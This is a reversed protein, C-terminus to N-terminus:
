DACVYNDLMWKVRNLTQRAQDKDFEMEEQADSIMSYALNKASMKFAGYGVRSKFAEEMGKQTVGFLAVERREQDTLDRIGLWTGDEAVTMQKTSNMTTEKEM